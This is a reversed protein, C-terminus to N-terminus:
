ASRLIHGSPEMVYGGADAVAGAVGGYVSALTVYSDMSGSKFWKYAIMSLGTNPDTIVESTATVPVGFAEAAEIGDTPLGTKIAIAERTGFFGTINEKKAMTGSTYATTVDVAAGGRTASVKLTTTSPVSQVFYYDTTTLGAGGGGLASFKVRDNVLLGHAASTTIIDTTAIGSVTLDNGNGTGLLPDEM